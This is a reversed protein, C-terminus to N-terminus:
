EPIPRVQTADDYGTAGPEEARVQAFPQDCPTVLNYTNVIEGRSPEGIELGELVVLSEFQDNRIDAGLQVYLAVDVGDHVQCTRCRWRVVQGTRNLCQKNATLPGSVSELQLSFSARKM